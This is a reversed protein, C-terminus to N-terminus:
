VDLGRLANRSATRLQRSASGFAFRRRASQQLYGVATPSPRIALAGTARVREGLPRQRESAAQILARHGVADGLDGLLAIAAERVRSDEDVLASRLPGMVDDGRRVVSRLAEVRVRPEQHRLLQRTAVVVEPQDVHRLAAILNRVVYWRDDGLRSVIVSPNDRAVKTLAELLVRRRSADDQEALADIVPIMAHRALRELFDNAEPTAADVTALIMDHNVTAVIMESVVPRLNGAYQPDDLLADFWSTARGFEGAEVDAAVAASWSRLIREFREPRQELFLLSRFGDISRSFYTSADPIQNQLARVAAESSRDVPSMDALRDHIKSAALRRASMIADTDSLISILEGPRGDAQDTAVRAYDLLLTLGKSDLRPAMAALEHGAFQDLFARDALDESSLFETFAAEQAAPELHFFAEVFAQVVAERGETDAPEIASLASQYGDVLASGVESATSGGAALEAALSEPHNVANVIKQVFDPRAYTTGASEALAGRQSVRLSTVGDRLLATGLGGAEAVGSEPQSLLQFFRAVDEAAVDPQVSVSLVRHLFCQAALRGAGERDHALPVADHLFGSADIDLRLAPSAAAQLHEIARRFAPQDAPDPYLNFVTWATGLADVAAAPGSM